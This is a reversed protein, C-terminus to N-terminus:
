ERVILILKDLWEDQEKKKQGDQEYHKKLHGSFEDEKDKPYKIHIKMPCSELICGDFYVYDLHEFPNVYDNVTVYRTTYPRPFKKEWQDETLKEKPEESLKEKPEENPKEKPEESPKEKPEESPKEKPEETLKKKPEEKLDIQKESM